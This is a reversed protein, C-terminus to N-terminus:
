AQGRGTDGEKAWLWQRAGEFLERSVRGSEYLKENAILALQVELYTM